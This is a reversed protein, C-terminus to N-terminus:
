GRRTKEERERNVRWRAGSLEAEAEDERRDGETMVEGENDVDVVVVVVGDKNNEEEDDEEEEEEASEM